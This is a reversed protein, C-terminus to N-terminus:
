RSIGVLSPVSIHSRPQTLEILPIVYCFGSLIAELNLCVGNTLALAYIGIFKGREGQFFM